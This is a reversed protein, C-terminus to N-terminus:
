VQQVSIGSRAVTHLISEAIKKVAKPYKPLCGDMVSEDLQNLNRFTVIGAPNVGHKRCIYIYDCFAQEPGVVLSKVPKAYVTSNIRMFVFRGLSTERIRSRNQRRKTFCHVEQPVQTILHHLHLAYIGTIYATSDIAKVVDEVGVAGPLGYRGATYREIIHKDVLRSLTVKLSSYECQSVNALESNTFVVKGHVDRQHQFFQQWELANM